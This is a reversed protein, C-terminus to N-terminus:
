LHTEGAAKKLVYDRFARVAPPMFVKGDHVMFFKRKYPPSSIELIPLDLKLLLDMYPVVAIGFGQAVLGAIVQDEETEYAIRPKGGASAFLGDVVERLGSGKSFYVQSYPLAEALDVCHRSALPHGNPVILVLDQQTVPVAELGLERSPESCIVLDYRRDMLGDLLGQTRDTHFEFRINEGSNEALFGAALRPVYDSGLTRLFGLRILGEGQASRQLSSVGMDLTDLAQKASELFEEGFRTLTTNRGTKEFLPVGLETELQRIAHSLSPQTICLQQAAKTYHRLEALKVFYRLYDLNM